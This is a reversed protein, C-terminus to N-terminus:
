AAIAGRERRAEAAVLRSGCTEATRWVSDRDAEVSALASWAALRMRDSPHTQGFRLALDKAEESGLGVAIRVFAESAGNNLVGTIRKADLDFRYQDFWGQAAGTHVVNISVSLADAALQAHIDRHARYHMIKGEALRTREVFRLDVAEGRWGDVAAYDYEYYDSWYGPGFYGLTLFDFNHDHPVGYVFTEGGSARMTHEDASPWINARLFFDPAAGAPSLMVVQPGYSAMGDDSRLGQALEAVLLDGLFTRDNGLRRLLGAAHQLSDEDTPEFGRSMLADICEPLSATTADVAEIVRPM